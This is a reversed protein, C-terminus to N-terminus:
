CKRFVVSKSFQGSFSGMIANEKIIGDFNESLKISYHVTSISGFFFRLEDPLPHLDSDVIQLHLNGDSLTGRYFESSYGGNDFMTKVIAEVCNGQISEIIFYQTMHSDRYVYYGLLPSKKEIKTDKAQIANVIVDNFSHANLFNDDALGEKIRNTQLISAMRDPTIFAPKQEQPEEIEEITIANEEQEVKCGCESCFLDDNELPSGCNQCFLGSNQENSYSDTNKLAANEARPSQEGSFKM